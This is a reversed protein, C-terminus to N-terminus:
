AVFIWGSDILLYWPIAADPEPLGATKSFSCFEIACHKSGEIEYISHPFDEQIFAEYTADFLIIAQHELAYDVWLQLQEKNYVAGTPNNPSCLYIIDVDVNKDPLPLFRNEANANAYIIKRGSM